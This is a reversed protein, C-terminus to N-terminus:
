ILDELKQNELYDGAAIWLIRERNGDVDQLENREWGGYQELTKKIAEDDMGQEEWDIQSAWYEVDEDCPGQHCCEELADVPIRLYGHEFEVIETKM